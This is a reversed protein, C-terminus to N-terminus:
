NWGHGAFLQRRGERDLPVQAHLVTSSGQVVVLQKRASQAMRAVIEEEPFEVRLRERPVVFVTTGEPGVTSEGGLMKMQWILAAEGDVCVVGVPLDEGQGRVLPTLEDVMPMAQKVWGWAERTSGPDIDSM